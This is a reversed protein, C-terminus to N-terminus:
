PRRHRLAPRAAAARPLQLLRVARHLAPRAGSDIDYFEALFTGLGFTVSNYIFAQGIFLAFGLATRQPYTKFATSAITRFSITKRQRVAMADGPEEELKEGTEQEVDREIDGVIREAEEDRGHIFLWRPSEPM